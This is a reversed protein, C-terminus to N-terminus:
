VRLEVVYGTVGVVACPSTGEDSCSTLHSSIISGRGSLTLTPFLCQVGEYM